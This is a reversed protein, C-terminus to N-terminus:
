TLLNPLATNLQRAVEDATENSPNTDNASNSRTSRGAMIRKCRSNFFSWKCQKLGVLIKSHKIYERPNKKSLFCAFMCTHFDEDNIQTLGGQYTSLDAEAGVDEENDSYIIDELAPINPDEPCQSLDVFSLNGGIEFASSVANDFPGAANFSNTSNTSNPEVVTVPTSAANVRNTSNVFFEEFEDSLNRVGTSLDVHSKGKPKRKEREDHKKTKDSSSPSVHVEFTNVKDNFAAVVDTNQPNSISYGVLFGEDTKEDFKGLPDLTNLITVLCGFPRMFGISPIRSLLLEYPTKNHPKTVLVRSYDNTVVLYYSKKNLSKVFNLGFSDMHLRQLPQSVSSVPKTKCSARHQKGHNEDPLKFDSSLVVSKTDGKSIGGFAVYGGNIEKFNSLYSINRNMHRSCGNDIVGKDKLAQHPDGNIVTPVTETVTSADHFVLDPKPPMFTRTYPTPVAHYGEGSKYKDHVLSTPVSVDSKSSNLEDSRARMTLMAMQWKLDMEELDDADIQKLDDNNLQPSNSAGQITAPQSSTVHAKIEPALGQIYRNVRQSEPTVMHPVLRALEHFRATYGDIDSGVMKHNWFESELKEVEDDPCYEEMLLKKFDEWSQAIAVARGRTQVLTNWWTLARGQLRSSAFEVQNETPCKTIHLVAKISEFWTLLGVVGETRFFEKAGSARLTQYQLKTHGRKSKSLKRVKLYNTIVDKLLVVCDTIEFNVSTVTSVNKGTHWPFSAPCAFSDVWFFHDNWRKLSDLPKTYCVIDSDLRKSFSMLGKNKSNVYFCRFLRVAPEIDHVRCLIEFHSVKTATIVSLQSINIHYYRLVNVLFTSLPLRFNAYEFFRTYVGIKGTPMEHITQNPSPLQLHIDNPIHFAQCFTDLGRQTLVSKINTISGM